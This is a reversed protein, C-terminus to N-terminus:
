AKFPTKALASDSSSPSGGKNSCAPTKLTACAIPIAAIALIIIAV